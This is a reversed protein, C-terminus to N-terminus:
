KTKRLIRIPTGNFGFKERILRELHRLYDDKLGEPRDLFVAFAPPETGVQKLAFLRLKRGKYLPPLAAEGLIATLPAEAVTKKRERMVGDIMPFVKTVRKRELASITLFPAHPFFWLKREMEKGLRKFAEEPEKTMDWKNLLFIAGKGSNLAMGAVKQDDATIGEPADLVVLCVDAREISKLARLMAFREIPYARAKRRIGATDMLLYKRGDYACLSDIADRTTGSVPSVIMRRKGLLSNVLTSKGTNPRGIVAVKPYDLPEEVRPPLLSVAKDMLEEFNYGTRASVPILDEPGLGYFDYLRDLKSPGDIKNVVHLFRKGSARLLGSLEADLPTLGAKGDLLHVVLDAEEVAFLAQERVQKEIEMDGEPYFGGTDVVIFRQGEWRAEMYNRDRTVGPVEEVIAAQGGVVRNFLTSKGTNPRGVIVLVGRM